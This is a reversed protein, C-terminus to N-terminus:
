ILNHEKKEKTDTKIQNEMSWLGRRSVNELM